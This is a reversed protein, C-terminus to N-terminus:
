RLYSVYAAVAEIQRRNLSHAIPAMVKTLDESSPTQGRETAWNTLEKVTYRYLQGALRPIEEHGQAGPGHCAACAAVNTEPVGEQYIARGAEVLGRPAGDIPPPNLAAFRAALAALMDRSLGHVKWMAIAINRERRRAVFARIQNEFYPTMQGALRPIPYFGRYGQGSSGHCDQCYEIKAAVSGRSVASRDRADARGTASFVLAVIAAQLVLKSNAFMVLRRGRGESKARALRVILRM